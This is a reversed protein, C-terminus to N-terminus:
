LLKCERENCTFVKVCSNVQTAHGANAAHHLKHWTHQNSDDGKTAGKWGQQFCVPQLIHLHADQPWCQCLDVDCATSAKGVSCAAGALCVVPATCWTCLLQVWFPMTSSCCQGVALCFSTLEATASRAQLGTSASNPVLKCRFNNEWSPLQAMRLHLSLLHLHLNARCGGLCLLFFAM